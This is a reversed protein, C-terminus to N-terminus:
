PCGSGQCCFNVECGPLPDGTYCQTNGATVCTGDIVLNPTGGNVTRICDKGSCGPDIINSEYWLINSSSVGYNVQDKRGSYTLYTDNDYWRVPIHKDKKNDLRTVVKYTNRDIISFEYLQNNPGCPWKKFYSQVASVTKGCNSVVNWTSIDTASPYSGKDSYYREFAIRIEKLDNKRRSDQAKNVLAIPNLVGILIVGMVSLITTVILLEVLTFGNKIRLDKIM